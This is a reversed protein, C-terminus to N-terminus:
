RPPIGEEAYRPLGEYPLDYPGPPLDFAYAPRDAPVGANLLLDNEPFVEPFRPAPRFRALPVLDTPEDLEWKPALERAPEVARFEPGTPDTDRAEADGAALASPWHCEKPPAPEVVAPRLAPFEFKAQAWPPGAPPARKLPDAPVEPLTDEDESELPPRLEAIEGLRATEFICPERMFRLASPPMREVVRLDPVGVSRLEVTLWV